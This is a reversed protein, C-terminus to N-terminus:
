HLLALWRDRYEARRDNTHLKIMRDDVVVCSDQNVLARVESPFRYEQFRRAWHEITNLRLVYSTLHLVCPRRIRPHAGRPQANPSWRRVWRDNAKWFEDYVGGADYLVTLQVIWFILYPDDPLEHLIERSAVSVRSSSIFPLQVFELNMAETTLFFSPCLADRVCEGPRQRFFKLLGGVILRVLWICRPETVIVLDIDSEDRCNGYGLANGIAIMRVFPIYALVHAWRRAKRFKRWAWQTKKRRLWALKTRGPLTVFGDTMVTGAPVSVGFAAYEEPTLVWDFLNFWTLIERSDM